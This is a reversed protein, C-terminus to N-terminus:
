NEPDHETRRNRVTFILSKKIFAGVRILGSAAHNRTGGTGAQLHPNLAHDPFTPVPKGDERLGNRRAFCPGFLDHEM